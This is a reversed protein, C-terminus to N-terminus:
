GTHGKMLSRFENAKDVHINRGKSFDNTYEPKLVVTHGDTKSTSISEIMEYYM